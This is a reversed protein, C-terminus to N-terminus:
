RSPARRRSRTRSRGAAHRWRMAWYDAYEPRELLRDILKARKDPSTDALFARAEDATPLTGIM